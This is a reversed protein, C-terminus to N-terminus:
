TNLDGAKALTLFLLLAPMRRKQNQHTKIIFIAFFFILLSAYFKM